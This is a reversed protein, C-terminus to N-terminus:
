LGGSAVRKSLATLYWPLVRGFFQDAAGQLARRPLLACATVFFADDADRAGLVLRDLAGDTRAGPPTRRGSGTFACILDEDAGRALAGLGEIVHQDETRRTEALGGKRVDDGRLQAHVQALGRTRHELPGPVQRRKQGVQLRAVHQEDVLDVAQRGHDLFHEVRRHLVVLEVDHDALPGAAREILSFRGGKVRTPAVVRAPSSVEGSRSRKPM